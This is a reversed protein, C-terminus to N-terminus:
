SCAGLMETSITKTGCKARVDAGYIYGINGSDGWGQALLSAKENQNATYERRGDQQSLVYLPVTGERSMDFSYGIIRNNKFGQALLTAIEREDTTYYNLLPNSLEYIPSTGSIQEKVLFGVLTNGEDSLIVKKEDNTKYLASYSDEPKFCKPIINEQYNVGNQCYTRSPIASGCDSDQTCYVPISSISQNSSYNFAFVVLVIGVIILLNNNKM